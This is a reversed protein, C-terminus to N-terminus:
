NMLIGSLLIVHMAYINLVNKASITSIIPAACHTRHQYTTTQKDEPINQCPRNTCEGWGAREEMIWAAWRRWRGCRRSESRNRRLCFLKIIPLQYAFLLRQEFWVIPTEEFVGFFCLTACVCVRSVCGCVHVCLSRSFYLLCYNDQRFLGSSKCSTYNTIRHYILMM